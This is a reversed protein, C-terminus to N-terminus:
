EQETISTSKLIAGFKQQALRIIKERIPRIEASTLSKEPSQYIVHLTKTSQYSDLLTINSVLKNVSKLATMLTGIPMEPPCNFALDEFSPPYKPIPKYVATPKRRSIILDMNLDLLTVTQRIGLKNLLSSNIVGLSGFDGLQLQKQNDLWDYKKRNQGDPLNLGFMKLVTEAVGKLEFFTEGTQAVVLTSTEKPLNEPHYDYAMSLEFLKLEDQHHLNESICNLLSPILSPRMYVWEDSLPNSIKYARTKDLRFDSMLQESIMSYTYTETYGWDRLRIKLDEELQLNKPPNIAPPKKDPLKPLINHYGYLRAVEEIIDVDIAIDPRWSPVSVQLNSSQIKAQLGLPQLLKALEQSTLKVGLYDTVKQLAVSVTKTRYPKSHLDYLKSAPEGGALQKILEAGRAFAPLVLEPDIGKEFIAAAETRHALAMSTKRIRVPDYTQLFLIVTDTTDTIASNKGGMIGCLDILKDDSDAIVIDDGPLQHTKGDLTTLIEGRRSARLIMAVVGNKQAIRNYDFAHAPQGFTRMLYNTIDVINNIPRIGTLELKKQLWEPSPKVKVGAFVLSTWRPNLQVNTTIILKKLNKVQPKIRKLATTDTLYPDNVLKAAIGFRPLIAAAERAVGTVSMSDPRNTTIEVDYVIEGNINHVREVSPGCLSLYEKIQAPAAKTDLHERLWSDPILINM